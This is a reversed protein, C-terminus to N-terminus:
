SLLPNKMLGGKLLPGFARGGCERMVGSQSRKVGRSIWGWYKEDTEAIVLGSPPTDVHAL